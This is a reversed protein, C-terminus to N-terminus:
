QTHQKGNNQDPARSLSAIMSNAEVLQEQASEFLQSKEDLEERKCRLNEKLCKIEDRFIELNKQYICNFIDTWNIQLAFEKVSVEHEAIVLTKQTNIECCQELKQLLSRNEEELEQIRHMHQETSLQEKALDDSSLNKTLATELQQRLQVNEHQADDLETQLNEMEKELSHTKKCWEDTKNKQELLQEDLLGGKGKLVQELEQSLYSQAAEATDLARKLDYIRQDDNEKSSRLENCKELLQSYEELLEDRSLQNLDSYKM